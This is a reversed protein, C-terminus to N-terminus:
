ICDYVQNEREFFKMSLEFFETPNTLMAPHGGEDFLHIKGHGIKKIMTGYIEEYYDPSVM